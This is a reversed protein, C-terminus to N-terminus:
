FVFKATKEVENSAAAFAPFRLRRARRVVCPAIAKAAENSAEVVRSKVVQGDGRITFRVQLAGSTPGLRATGALCRKMGSWDTIASQFAGDSLAGPRTDEELVEEAESRAASARRRRRREAPPAPAAAEPEPEPRNTGLLAAALAASEETGESAGPRASTERGPGAGPAYIKRIKPKAPTEETEATKASSGWEITCAAGLLGLLLCSVAGTFSNSLRMESM